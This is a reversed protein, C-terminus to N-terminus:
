THDHDDRDPRPPSGRGPRYGWSAGPWPRLHCERGGPLLAGEDDFLVIGNCLLSWGQEPRSIAVRAAMRDPALAGPCQPQHKCM